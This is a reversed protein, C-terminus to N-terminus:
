VGKGKRALFQKGHGVSTDVPVNASCLPCDKEKYSRIPITALWSFPAGVVEATVREADRNAMVCAWVTNAGAKKVKTVVKAVSGGTTTTDEIVLVNKGAVVRDYGRKFVQDNDPTKDTYVSLIERGLKHSLHYATWHALIISGWGPGAVVEVPLHQNKEAFLEGVRSTEAPHTLLADKNIYTDMHRGSTGVFHGDVILAKTRKLIDVVEEGSDMSSIIVCGRATGSSPSSGEGRALSSKSDLADAM